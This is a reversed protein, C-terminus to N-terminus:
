AFSDGGVGVSKEFVKVRSEERANGRGNFNVAAEGVLLRLSHLKKSEFGNRVLIRFKPGGSL